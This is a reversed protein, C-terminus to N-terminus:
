TTLARIRVAIEIATVRGEAAGVALAAWKAPNPDITVGQDDLCSAAV